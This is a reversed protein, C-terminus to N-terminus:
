WRELERDYAEQAADRAAQAYDRQLERLEKMAEAHTLQGREKAELIAQEEREYQDM